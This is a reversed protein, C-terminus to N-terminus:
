HRDIPCFVCANLNQYNASFNATKYFQLCDSQEIISCIVYRAKEVVGVGGSEREGEKKRKSGRRENKRECKEGRESLRSEGGKGKKGECKEEEKERGKKSM